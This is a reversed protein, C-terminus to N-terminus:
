RSGIHLKERRARAGSWTGETVKKGRISGKPTISRANRVIGQGFPLRRPTM